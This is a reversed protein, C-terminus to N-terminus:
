SRVHADVVSRAVLRAHRDVELVDSLSTVSSLGIRNLTENVTAAIGLFGLEGNLFAAVAVENAANLIAPASAGADLADYALQLCPFVILDPEAFDLRALSLLNLAAAGSHIREPWALANAIPIRMDASGLQALFSGDDYEVLSHVVSQPHVVVKIREREIGFLFHAEIVELGKNMLSASDVSIKPGMSWNPHACAQAISVSALQDATWGRFPGGSATLWLQRVGRPPRSSDVPLCQFIANHESDIPLLRAGGAEVAAMLLAGACVLAEKNALLIRKGATAAALTPALGAAGVIAAVVIDVCSQKAAAVIAASGEEVATTLGAARLRARLRAAAAPDAMVALRPMFRVCLEAMTVDDRGAVVTDLRFRTAHREILDLTSRGVSGTAGLLCVSKM